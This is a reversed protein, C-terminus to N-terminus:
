KKLETELGLLVLYCTAESLTIHRNKAFVWLAEHIESTMTVYKRTKAPVVVHYDGPNEKITM